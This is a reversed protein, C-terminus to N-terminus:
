SRKGAVSKRHKNSAKPKLLALLDRWGRTFVVLGAFLALLYIIVAATLVMDQM